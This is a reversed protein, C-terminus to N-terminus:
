ICQIECHLMEECHKSSIRIKATGQLKYDENCDWWWPRVQGRYSMWHSRRMPRWLCRKEKMMELLQKNTVKDVLKKKWCWMEFTELTWRDAKGMTWTWMRGDHHEVSIVKLIEEKNVIWYKIFIKKQYFARKAHAQRRMIDNKKMWIKHYHWGINSNMWM